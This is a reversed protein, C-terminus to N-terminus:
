LKNVLVFASKSDSEHPPLLGRILHHVDVQQPNSLVMEVFVLVQDVLELCFTLYVSRLEFSGWELLDGFQLSDSIHETSLHHSSTEDSPKL